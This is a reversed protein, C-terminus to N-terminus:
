RFAALSSSLTSKAAVRESCHCIPCITLDSEYYSRCSACPLGYLVKRRLGGAQAFGEPAVRIGPKNGDNM